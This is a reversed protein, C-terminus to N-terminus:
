FPIDPDQAGKGDGSPPAPEFDAPPAGQQESEAGGGKGGSGLFIVNSANIETSYRKVNEKDTWERTQIRGEVCVPRGKKLYQGCNEASKGWVVIRHWETQERMEGSAKDKWKESTAVSFNCVAAGGPTFRVEPDKGLNGIIIAKNLSAM